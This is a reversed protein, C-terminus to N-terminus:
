ACYTGPGPNPNGYQSNRKSTGFGFSPSTSKSSNVQQRFASKPRATMPGPSGQGYQGKEHEASIYVRQMGMRTSTGFGYAPLSKKKSYVQKGLASKHSAYQGAGPTTNLMVNTKSDSKFRQASGFHTRAACPATSLPQKGLGVLHKYVPGPTNGGAKCKELEANLYQKDADERKGTGFVARASSPRRSTVQTGISKEYKYGGPGIDSVDRRKMSLPSTGMVARASSPRNSSCQPGFSNYIKYVAGQSNNGPTVRALDPSLYQKRYIDRSSTGFPSIPETNHISRPQRGFGSRLCRLNWALAQQMEYKKNSQM